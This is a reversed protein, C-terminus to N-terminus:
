KTENRECMEDKQKGEFLTETVANFCLQEM